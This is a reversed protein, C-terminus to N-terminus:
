LVSRRQLASRFFANEFGSEEHSGLIFINTATSDGPAMRQLTGLNQIDSALIYDFTTLDGECLVTRALHDIPIDHSREDPDEGEHYNATGASYVYIDLGEKKAEHAM